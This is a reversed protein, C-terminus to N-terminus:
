RVDAATASHSLSYLGKVHASTVTRNASSDGFADAELANLATADYGCVVFIWDAVQDTAPRIRQETTEAIAPPQHRLLHAGVIGPQSICRELITRFHAPVDRGGMADASFRLTLACRATGAGRSEIVHCQSRVMNRHHPMMKTSWPTPANLRAAYAASSLTEHADVEYMVFIGPGSDVSTWRTGRRFGPVSMREPFHEHSHWDEFEGKVESAIDWWMALAANGLLSM